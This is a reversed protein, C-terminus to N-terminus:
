DFVVFEFVYYFVGVVLVDGCLELVVEVCYVVGVGEFYEVCGVVVFVFWVLYDM